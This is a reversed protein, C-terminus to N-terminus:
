HPEGDPAAMQERRESTGPPFPRNGDGASAGSHEKIWSSVTVVAELVAAAFAFGAAVWRLGQQEGAGDRPALAAGLGVMLAIIGVHYLAWILDRWNQSSDESDYAGLRSSQVALILLVSGVALALLAVGPWRFHESGDAIVVVAALSFGALFASMNTVTNMWPDDTTPHSDRRWRRLWRRLWGM